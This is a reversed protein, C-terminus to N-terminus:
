KRLLLAAGVAVAAAAGILLPTSSGGSNEVAIVDTPTLPTQRQRNRGLIAEKLRAKFAPSDIYFKTRPDLTPFPRPSDGILVQGGVARMNPLACFAVTTGSSNLSIFYSRTDARASNPRILPNTSSQGLWVCPIGNASAFGCKPYSDSIAVSTFKRLWYRAAFREAEGSLTVVRGGSITVSGSEFQVQLENALDEYVGKLADFSFPIFEQRNATDLGMCDKFWADTGARFNVQCRYGDGGLMNCKDSSTPCRDNGHIYHVMNGRYESGYGTGAAVLGGLVARRERVVTVKRAEYLWAYVADADVQPVGVYLLWNRIDECMNFSKTADRGGLLQAVGKAVGVRNPFKLATQEVYYKLTEWRQDDSYGQDAMATNWYLNWGKGAGTEIFHEDCQVLIRLRERLILGCDTGDWEKNWGETPAITYDAIADLIYKIFKCVLSLVEFVATVIPFGVCAVAIVDCVPGIVAFVAQATQLGSSGEYDAVAGAVAVEVISAAVTAVAAYQQVSTLASADDATGSELLAAARATTEADVDDESVGHGALLARLQTDMGPPSVDEIGTSRRWRAMETHLEEQTADPYNALWQTEYDAADIIHQSDRFEDAVTAVQALGDIAAQQLALISHSGISAPVILPLDCGEVDIQIVRPLHGGQAQKARSLCGQVFQQLSALDGLATRGFKQSKYATPASTMALRGFTTMAIGWTCGDNNTRNLTM